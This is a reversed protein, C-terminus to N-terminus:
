EDAHSSNTQKEHRNLEIISITTPGNNRYTCQILISCQVYYNSMRVTWTWNSLTYSNHVTCLYKTLFYDSSLPVSYKYLSRASRWITTMGNNVIADRVLLCMSVGKNWRENSFSYQWNVTCCVFQNWDEAAHARCSSFPSCEYNSNYDEIWKFCRKLLSTSTCYNVEYHPIWTYTQLHVKGGAVKSCRCM